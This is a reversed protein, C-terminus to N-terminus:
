AKKSKKKSVIWRIFMIIVILFTLYMLMSKTVTVASAIRALKETVAGAKLISVTLINETYDSVFLLAPIIEFATRKGTLAKMVLIFFASYAVPYFFDLPLQTHLALRMGGPSLSALFARAQELSYGFSNMDFFRMGETGAEIAPILWLNMVAMIIVTVSGSVWLLIKRTKM